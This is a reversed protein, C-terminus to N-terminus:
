EEIREGMDTDWLLAVKHAWPSGPTWYIDSHMGEAGRLVGSPMALYDRRRSIDRWLLWFLCQTHPWSCCIRGRGSWDHWARGAEPDKRQQGRRKVGSLVAWGLKRKKEPKQFRSLKAAQSVCVHVCECVHTCVQDVLVSGMTGNHRACVLWDTM